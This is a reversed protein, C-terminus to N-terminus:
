FNLLFIQLGFRGETQGQPQQNLFYTLVPFWYSDSFEFKFLHPVNKQTRFQDQNTEVAKIEWSLINQLKNPFAVHTCYTGFFDRTSALDSLPRPKARRCVTELICAELNLDKCVCMKRSALTLKVVKIKWLPCWVWKKRPNGNPINEVERGIKARFSRELTPWVAAHIATKRRSRLPASPNLNWFVKKVLDTAMKSQASRARTPGGTASNHRGENM